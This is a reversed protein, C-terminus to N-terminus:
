IGDFILIMDHCKVEWSWCCCFLSNVNIFYIHFWNNKVSSIWYCLILWYFAEWVISTSRQCWMLVVWCSWEMKSSVGGNRFVIIMSKVNGVFFNWRSYEGTWTLWYLYWLQFIWFMRLVHKIENTYDRVWLAFVVLSSHTGTFYSTFCHFTVILFLLVFHIPTNCPHEVTVLWIVVKYM